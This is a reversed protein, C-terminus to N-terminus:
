KRSIFPSPCVAKSPASRRSAPPVKSVCIRESYIMSSRSPTIPSSYLSGVPCSLITITSSFGASHFYRQNSNKVGSSYFFIKSLPKFAPERIYPATKVPCVPRVSIFRHPGAQGKKGFPWFVNKEIMKALLGFNMKRNNQLLSFNMKEIMKSILAFKAKKEIM